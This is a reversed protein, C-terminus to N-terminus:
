QIGEVTYATSDANVRKFVENPLQKWGKDGFIEKLQEDSLM